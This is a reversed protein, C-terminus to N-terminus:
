FIYTASITWSNKRSEIDTWKGKFGFTDYANTLGFGYRAGVQVKKFLEVLFYIFSASSIAMGFMTFIQLPVFVFAVAVVTFKTKM